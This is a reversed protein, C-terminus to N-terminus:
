LICGVHHRIMISCFINNYDTENEHSMSLFILHKSEFHGYWNQKEFFIPIHMYTPFLLLLLLIIHSVKVPVGFLPQQPMDNDSQSQRQMQMQQKQQQKAQERRDM